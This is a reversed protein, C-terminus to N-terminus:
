ITCRKACKSGIECSAKCFNGEKSGDRSPFGRCKRWGFRGFDPFRWKQLLRGMGHRSLEDKPFTADDSTPFTRRKCFDCRGFVPSSLKESLRLAGRRSIEVKWFISGDSTPAGRWKQCCFRVTAPRSELEELYVACDMPLTHLLTGFPSFVVPLRHLSASGRSVIGVSTFVGVPHCLM